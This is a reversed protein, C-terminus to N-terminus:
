CFIPTFLSMAFSNATTITLTLVQSPLKVKSKM